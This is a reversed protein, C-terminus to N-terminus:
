SPNVDDPVKGNAECEAQRARLLPRLATARAIMTEPTLGPEPPAITSTKRAPVNLM